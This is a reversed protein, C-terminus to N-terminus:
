WHLVALRRWAWHLWWPPKLLLRWSGGFICPGDWPWIAPPLPLHLPFNRGQWLGAYSGKWSSGLVSILAAEAFPLYFGLFCGWFQPDGGFRGLSRALARGGCFCLVVPSATPSIGNASTSGLCFCLCWQLALKFVLLCPPAGGSVLMRGWRLSIKLLEELAKRRREPRASVFM